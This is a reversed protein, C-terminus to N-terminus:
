WLPLDPPDPQQALPLSLVGFYVDGLRTEDNATAQYPSYHSTPMAVYVVNHVTPAENRSSDQLLSGTGERGTSGTDIQVALPQPYLIRNSPRRMGSILSKNEGPHGAAAFASARYQGRSRGRSYPYYPRRM